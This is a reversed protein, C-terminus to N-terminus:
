IDGDGLGKRGVDSPSKQGKSPTQHKKNEMRM